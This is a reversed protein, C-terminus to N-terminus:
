PEGSGVYRSNPSCAATRRVRGRGSFWPRERLRHAVRVLGLMPLSLLAIHELPNIMAIVPRTDDRYPLDTM